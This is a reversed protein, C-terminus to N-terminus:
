AAAAHTSEKFVDLAKRLNAVSAADQRFSVV